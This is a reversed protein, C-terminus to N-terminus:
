GPRRSDNSNRYHLCMDYVHEDHEISPLGRVMGARWMKQLAQFGLHGLRTHWCWEDDNYSAVLYVPKTSRLPLIYLRNPSRQIKALLEHSRHDWLRLAGDDIDIRNRNEDLQRVSLINSRLCLIHYVDHIARHGGDKSEFLISGREIVEVLSGDGFRVFEVVDHNYDSFVDADGTMHNLAGTDLYWKMERQEGNIDFDPLVKHENLYVHEVYHADHVTKMSPQVVVM